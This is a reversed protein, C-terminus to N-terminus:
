RSAQRRPTWWPCSRGGFEQYNPATMKDKAPLNIWLQFGRM